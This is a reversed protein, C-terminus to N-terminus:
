RCHRAEFDRSERIMREREEDTYRQYSGDERRFKAGPTSQLREVNVRAKAGQERCLSRCLRQWLSRRTRTANM